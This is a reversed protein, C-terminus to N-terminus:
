DSRFHRAVQNIPELEECIVFHRVQHYEFPKGPLNCKIGYCCNMKKCNSGSCCICDACTRFPKFNGHLGVVNSEMPGVQPVVQPVWEM